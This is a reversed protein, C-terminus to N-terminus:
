ALLAFLQTLQRELKKAPALGLNRQTIIERLQSKAEMRRNEQDGRDRETRYARHSQPKLLHSGIPPEGIQIEGREFRAKLTSAQQTTATQGVKSAQKTSDAKNPHSWEARETHASKTLSPQAAKPPPPPFDSPVAQKAPPPPFDSPVAQKTISEAKQTLASPAQNSATSGTSGAPPPPFDPLAPAQSEGKTTEQAAKQQLAKQRLARVDVSIETKEQARYSRSAAQRSPQNPTKNANAQEKSAFQDAQNGEAQPAQPAETQTTSQPAGANPAATRGALASLPHRPGNFSESAVM